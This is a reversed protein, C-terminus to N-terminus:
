RYSFPFRYFTLFFPPQVIETVSWGYSSTRASSSPPLNTILLGGVAYINSTGPILDGVHAGSSITGGWALSVNTGTMWEESVFDGELADVVPGSLRGWIQVQAAAPYGWAEAIAPYAKRYRRTSVYTDIGDTSDISVEVDAQMRLSSFAHPLGSTASAGWDADILDVFDTWNTSAIENTSGYALWPSGDGTSLSGIRETLAAFILPVPAWGYDSESYGALVLDNTAVLTVNSAVSLIITHEAGVYDYVVNTGAPLHWSNTVYRGPAWVSGGLARYPTFAFYNTPAQISELLGEVTWNIVLDNTDLMAARVAMNTPLAVTDVWRPIEAEIFTKAQVLNAREDRYFHPKNTYAFDYANTRVPSQDAGAQWRERCALYVDLSRLDKGSLTLNTVSGSTARSYTGTLAVGDYLLGGRGGFPSPLAGLSYDAPAPNFAAIAPDVDLAIDSWYTVVAQISNSSAAAQPADIWVHWINTTQPYYGFSYDIWGYPAAYGSAAWGPYASGDDTRLDVTVETLAITATVNTTVARDAVGSQWASAHWGARASVSLLAIAAALSCGRLM